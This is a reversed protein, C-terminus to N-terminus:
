HIRIQYCTQGMFQQIVPNIGLADDRSDIIYPRLKKVYAIIPDLSEGIINPKQRYSAARPV